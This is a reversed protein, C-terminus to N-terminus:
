SLSKNPSLIMPGNVSQIHSGVPECPFTLWFSAQAHPSYTNLMNVFIRTLALQHVVVTPLCIKISNLLNRQKFMAYTVYVRVCKHTYM